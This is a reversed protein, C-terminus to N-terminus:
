SLSFLSANGSCYLRLITAPDEMRRHSHASIDQHSLSDLIWYREYRLKHPSSAVFLRFGGGLRRLFGPDLFLLTILGVYSPIFIEIKGNIALMSVILLVVLPIFTNNGLYNLFFVSLVTGLFVAILDKREPKKDKFAVLLLLLSSLAILFGSYDWLDFLMIYSGLMFLGTAFGTLRAEFEM